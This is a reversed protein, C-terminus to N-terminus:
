PRDQGPGPHPPADAPGTLGQAAPAPAAPDNTTASPDVAAGLSVELTTPGTLQVAVWRSGGLSVLPRTPAGSVRLARGNVAAPWTLVLHEEGAPPEARVSWRLAGLSDEATRACTLRTARRAHMFDLVQELNMPRQGWGAMLAPLARWLHYIDVSPTWMWFPPHFLSLIAAHDGQGSERALGAIFTSDTGGDFESHQYPLELIDLPLGSDDLPRFPFATGFMYGRCNFDPGYSSDLEIGAAQLQRFPRVPDPMWLLYHLRNTRLRRGPPLLARLQAAQKYVSVEQLFPGLKPLGAVEEFYRNWHLGVAHGGEILRRPTPAELEPGPILFCTSTVGRATEDLPMWEAKSAYGEDDHTMGYVGAVGDPWYWLAPLGTRRRVEQMLARELLDAIPVANAHYTSDVMLDNSELREMSLIGPYRSAIRGNEDPRGQQTAALFLGFDFRVDFLWGRGEPRVGLAPWGALQALVRTGAPAPAERYLRTYIPLRALGPRPPLFASDPELPALPAAPDPALREGALGCWRALPGAPLEVVLAGGARTWARLAEVQAPALRERVGASVVLLGLGRLSDAAFAACDLVRGAGFEQELTNLWALGFDRRSFPGPHRAQATLAARDVLVGAVSAPQGSTWRGPSEPCPPDRRLRHLNFAATLVGLTGVVLVALFVRDALRRRRRARSM